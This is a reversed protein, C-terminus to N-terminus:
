TMKLLRSSNAMEKLQAILPAIGKITMMRVINFCTALVSVEADVKPKGRLLFQGAQLNKKIHGHPTEAIFKRRRYIKQAEESRYVKQLHQRFEEHTYRIIRRGKASTTCRERSPCERCDHASAQYILRRPDATDQGRFPLHKGEPCIYDNHEKDYYFNNKAFPDPPTPNKEQQAEQPTPVIVM